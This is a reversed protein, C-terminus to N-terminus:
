RIDNEFTRSIISSWVYVRSRLDWDRTADDCRAHEQRADGHQADVARAFLM